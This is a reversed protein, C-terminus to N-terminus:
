PPFRSETIRKQIEREREMEGEADRPTQGGRERERAEHRKEHM